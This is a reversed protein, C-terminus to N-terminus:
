FDQVSSHQAAYLALLASHPWTCGSWSGLPSKPCQAVEMEALERSPYQDHACQKGGAPVASTFCQARCSGMPGTHNSTGTLLPHRQALLSGGVEGGRNALLLAAFAPPAAHGPAEQALSAPSAAREGGGQKARPVEAM